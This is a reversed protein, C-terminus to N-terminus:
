STARYSEGAKSVKGGSIGVKEVKNTAKNVIEYVHQAKESAKSNGNVVEVADVAKDAVRVADDAHATIRVGVGAGTVGPIIIALADAALAAETTKDVSGTKAYQYAAEGVDYLTFAVDFVTDWIRGDPDVRLIPNNGVYCYPPNKSISKM